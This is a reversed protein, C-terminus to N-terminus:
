EFSLKYGVGGHTHIKINTEEIKKRLRAVQTDVARSSVSTNKWVSQLLKNRPVIINKHEALFYLCDFEKKTLVIKGGDHELSNENPLFRIGGVSKVKQVFHFFELRNIVRALLEQHHFPKCLYDAVGMGLAKVKSDINHDVTVIIVPIKKSNIDNNLEELFSLGNKDPLNLDLIILDPRVTHALVKGEQATRARVLNFNENLIESYFDLLELDDEILLVKHM